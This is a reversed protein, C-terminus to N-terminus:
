GSDKLEITHWSFSHERPLQLINSITEIGGVVIMAEEVVGSDISFTGNELFDQIECEEFQLL